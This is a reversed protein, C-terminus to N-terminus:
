QIVELKLPELLLADAEGSRTVGLIRYTLRLPANVDFTGEFVVPTGFRFPVSDIRGSEFVPGEFRVVSTYETRDLEALQDPTLREFADLLARLEAGAPDSAPVFAEMEEEDAESRLTKLTENAPFRKLLADLTELGARNEGRALQQLALQTGKGGTAPHETLERQYERVLAMSFPNAEFAADYLQERERPSRALRAMASLAIVDDSRAELVRKYQERAKEPEGRDEYLIALRLQARNLLSVYTAVDGRTVNNIEFAEQKAVERALPAFEQSRLRGTLQVLLDEAEENQQASMLASALAHEYVAQNLSSTRETAVAVANRAASVAKQPRSLNMMASAYLNWIDPDDSAYRISEELLAFARASSGLKARALAAYATANAYRSISSDRRADLREREALAAATEYQGRALSVENRAMRADGLNLRAAVQVDFAYSGSLQKEMQAIEFDTAMRAQQAAAPVAALLLVLLARM